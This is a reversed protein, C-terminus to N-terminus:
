ISHNTSNYTMHDYKSAVSGGGAGILDQINIVNTTPRQCVEGQAALGFFTYEDFVIWFVQHKLCHELDMVNQHPDSEASGHRHRISESGAIKMM